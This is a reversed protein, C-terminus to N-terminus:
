DHTPPNIGAQPCSPSYPAQLLLPEMDGGTPLDIQSDPRDTLLDVYDYDVNM